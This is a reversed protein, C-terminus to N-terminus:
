NPKPAYYGHRTRVDDNNSTKLEIRRWTGDNAPNTPHYGIIYQQRLDASIQEVVDNLADWKKKHIQWARGGSYDAMQNLVSMDVTDHRDGSPDGLGICYVAVENRRLYELLGHFTVQSGSDVGDTIVVLAQKRWHGRMAKRVSAIMADYLKTAGGARLQAAAQALRVRDSTSDLALTLTSAFSVIFIEDDPQTTGGFLTVARRVPKIKDEMSSSTDVVVGVTVPEQELKFLTVQQPVGDELVTVSEKTLDSVYRGDKGTVTARLTVLSADSRFTPAEQTTLFLPPALGLLLPLWLRFM